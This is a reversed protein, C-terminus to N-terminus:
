KKVIFKGTVSNGESVIKIMYLGSSLGATNITYDYGGSMSQFRETFVVQGYTNTVTIIGPKLDYDGPITVNLSGSSPNPYSEVRLSKGNSADAPDAYGNKRTILTGENGVAFCTNGSIEVDNLRVSVPSIEETWGEPSYSLIVGSYGVAMGHKDDPFFVSNLTPTNTALDTQEWSSGDYHYIYGARGVAWIRKPDPASISKIEALVPEFARTLIDEFNRTLTFVPVSLCELGGAVLTIDRADVVTCLNGRIRNQLIRWSGQEYVLITGKDGVAVGHGADRFSVSLLRQKSPSPYVAWKIGDFRLIIGNSGVAWGDGKGTLSVSYLNENTIKPYNLWTDKDKYLITGNDGVIWGSSENLLGISNLHDKTPLNEIVWQGNVNLVMVLAIITVLHLKKQIM